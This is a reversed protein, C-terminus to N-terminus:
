IVRVRLRGHAVNSSGSLDLTDLAIAVPIGSSRKRLDGNGASELLDGSQVSEGDELWSYVVATPEALFYNVRDDAAYDDDLTRAQLPDEDAFAKEAYGGATAHVVLQGDSNVKILQGPTITGGAMGEETRGRPILVVRKPNKQDNYQFLSM